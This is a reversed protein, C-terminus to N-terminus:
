LVQILMAKPAAVMVSVVEEEVVTMVVAEVMQSEVINLDIKAFSINNVGVFKM